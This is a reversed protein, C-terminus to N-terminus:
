LAPIIKKMPMGIIAAKAGAIGFKRYCSARLETQLAPLQDVRTILNLSFACAGFPEEPRGKLTLPINLFVLADIEGGTVSEVTIRIYSNRPEVSLVAEASTEEFRIVLREGAFSVFTAHYEKGDRRVLACFSPTDRKLYDTGTKRDIFGLNRADPSITYRVYANEIVIADQRVGASAECIIIGLIIIATRM